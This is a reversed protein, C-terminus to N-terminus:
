RLDAATKKAWAYNIMYRGRYLNAFEPKGSLFDYLDCQLNEPVVRRKRELNEIIDSIGYEELTDRMRMAVKRCRARTVKDPQEDEWLCAIAEDTTLYGGRRDVMLALLEKAKASHFNVPKQDVYVEFVGFTHIWVRPKLFADPESNMKDSYFVPQRSRSQVALLLATEAKDYLIRGGAQPDNPSVAAGLYAEASIETCCETLSRQLERIRANAEESDEQGHLSVLFRYEGIRFPMEDPRLWRRIVESARIMANDRKELAKYGHDTDRLVIEAMILTDNNGNFGAKKWDAALIRELDRPLLFKTVPDLTGAAAPDGGIGEGNQLSESMGIGRERAIVIGLKEKYQANERELRILDDVDQLAAIYDWGGKRKERDYHIILRTWRYGGDVTKFRFLSEATTKGIVVQRYLSLFAKEDAPHICDTLDPEGVKNGWEKKNFVYKEFGPTTVLKKNTVDWLFLSVGADKLAELYAKEQNQFPRGNEVEAQLAKITERCTMDRCCLMFRHTELQYLWAIFQRRENDKLILSFELKDASTIEQNQYFRNRFFLGIRNRNELNIGQRSLFSYVDSLHIRYGSISNFEPIGASWRCPKRILFSFRM